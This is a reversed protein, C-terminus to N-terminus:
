WYSEATGVVHGLMGAFTTVTTTVTIGAIATAPEVRIPKGDEGVLPKTLILGPQLYGIRFQPLYTDPVMDQDSYDEITGSFTILLMDYALLMVLNTRFQNFAAYIGAPEGKQAALKEIATVISIEDDNGIVSQLLPSVIMKDFDGKAATLKLLGREWMSVCFVASQLFRDELEAALNVKELSELNLQGIDLSGPFSEKLIDNFPKKGDALALINNATANVIVMLKRDKRWVRKNM